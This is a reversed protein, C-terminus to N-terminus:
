DIPCIHENADLRMQEDEHERKEEIRANLIEERDRAEAAARAEALKRAGKRGMRSLAEHDGRLIAEQVHLPMNERGM